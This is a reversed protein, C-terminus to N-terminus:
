AMPHCRHICWELPLSIRAHDGHFQLNDPCHRNMCTQLLHEYDGGAAETKFAEIQEPALGGRRAAQVCRAIIAFANGDEGVLQVVVDPYKVEM